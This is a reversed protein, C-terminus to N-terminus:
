EAQLGSSQLGIRRKMDRDLWDCIGTWKKKEFPLYKWKEVTEM